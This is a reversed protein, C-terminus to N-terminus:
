RMVVNWLENNPGMRGRNMTTTARCLEQWIVREKGRRGEV